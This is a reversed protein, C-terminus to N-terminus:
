VLERRVREFIVRAPRDHLLDVWLFQKMTAKVETWTRFPLITLIQILCSRCWNQTEDDADDDDNHGISDECLSVAVTFLAWLLIRDANQEEQENGDERHDRVALRRALLQAEIAPKVKNALSDLRTLFGKLRMVLTKAYALMSLRLVEELSAPPFELQVLRYPISSGVKSFLGIPIRTTIANRTTTTTPPTTVENAIRSFERLDAWVYLLRPDLSAGSPTTMIGKLEPFHRASRGQAAQCGWGLGEEGYNDQFLRPRAGTAM